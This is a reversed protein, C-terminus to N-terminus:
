RTALLEHITAAENRLEDGVEGSMFESCSQLLSEFAERDGRRVLDAISSAAEEFADAAEINAENEFTLNVYTDIMNPSLMRGMTAAVLSSNPTALKTLIKLDVQSSELARGYCMVSNLVLFQLCPVVRDHGAASLSVINVGRKKWFDGVWSRWNELRKLMVTKGQASPQLTPTLVVNKGTLSRLGPGFMPHMGIISPGRLKGLAALPEEKTSSIDLVLKGRMGRCGRSGLLKKVGLSLVKIPVAIIIVEAEQVVAENLRRLTRNVENPNKPNRSARRAAEEGTVRVRYGEKRFERAFMRGMQGEGGIIGITKPNRPPGVYNHPNIMPSKM